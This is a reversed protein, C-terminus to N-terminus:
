TDLIIRVAKELIPVKNQIVDWIIEKDVGFYEHILIDRLGAIRKWPIEPYEIRVSEPINKVAEGIIELNRVVADCTKRDSFFGAYTMGETDDLINQSAKIIDELFVKYDRPM